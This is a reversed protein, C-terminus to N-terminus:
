SRDGQADDGGSVVQVTTVTAAPASSGNVAANAGGLLRGWLRDGLARLAITASVTSVQLVVDVGSVTLMYTGTIM